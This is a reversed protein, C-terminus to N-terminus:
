TENKTRQNYLLLGGVRHKGFLRNYTISAELYTANNGGSKNDFWPGGKATEPESNFVLEGNTDRRIAHWIEDQQTYKNGHWAQTDFAFKINAKM